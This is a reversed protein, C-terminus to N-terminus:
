VVTTNMEWPKLTTLSVKDSLNM